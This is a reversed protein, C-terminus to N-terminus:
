EPQTLTFSSCSVTAGSSISTSNLNLDCGSTGVSGMGIVTGGSEEVVFYGATGTNGATGSTISNATATVARGSGDTGSATGSGFATAGFTLTALLTGTITSNAGAPQSGTYLKITGSNLLAAVANVGGETATDSFFPNNAM